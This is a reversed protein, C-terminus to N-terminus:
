YTGETAHTIPWMHAYANDLQTAGEPFNASCYIGLPANWRSLTQWILSIPDIHIDFEWAINGSVLELLSLLNSVVISIKFVFNFFLGFLRQALQM